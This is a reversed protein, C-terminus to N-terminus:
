MQTEGSVTGYDTGLTPGTLQLIPFGAQQMCIIPVSPNGIETAVTSAATESIVILNSRAAYVANVPSVVARVVLNNPAGQLRTKLATEGATLTTSGTVLVAEPRTAWKLAADFLTWGNQPTLAGFQSMVAASAFWGVRRAPAVTSAAMTVGTQYAFIAVQTANGLITAVTEASSAPKGWG